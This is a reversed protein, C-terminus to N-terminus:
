ARTLKTIRGTSVWEAVYLDGNKDFCADHPHVFKGAQWQSEDTRIKFGKNAKNDAM